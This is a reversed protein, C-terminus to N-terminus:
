QDNTDDILFLVLEKPGHAGLVVTKEIDATRSPGTELSIMSPLEQPYDKRINALSDKIDSVVQSTYAIVIHMPPFISLSRGSAVGSSLVVTGTRAILSECGTVGVAAQVFNIHNNTFPIMTQKILEQLKPEWVFVLGPQRKRMFNRYNEIFDMQDLCFIFQGKNNVFSEAFVISLDSEESRRYIDSTLNPEPIGTKRNSLAGRINKLIEEKAKNVGM